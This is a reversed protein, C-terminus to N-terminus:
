EDDAINFRVLQIGQGDNGRDPVFRQERRRL